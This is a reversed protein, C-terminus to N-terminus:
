CHEEVVTIKELITDTHAVFKENVGHVDKMMKTGVDLVSKQTKKFIKAVDRSNNV